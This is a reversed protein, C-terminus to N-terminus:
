TVTPPVPPVFLLKEKRQASGGIEQFNQFIPHKTQTNHNPPHTHDHRTQGRVWPSTNLSLMCVECWWVRVRFVYLCASEVCVCCEVSQVCWLVLCWCAACVCFFVCRSTVRACGVGISQAMLVTCEFLPKKMREALSEVSGFFPCTECSACTVALDQQAGVQRKETQHSCVCSCGSPETSVVMNRADRHSCTSAQCMGLM